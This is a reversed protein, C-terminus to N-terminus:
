ATKAKEPVPAAPAVAKEDGPLPPTVYDTGEWPSLFDFNRYAQNLKVKEYVVRKSDEDYRLEVYGTLPFDKRQPHGEFGYDTLIRRLDPHYLFFIGYMDWVEREFWNAALFVECVSPVPALEEVPVKVRIRCNKTLSLLNYVVEFRAVRNPYDVATVDMLQSFQCNEDDRLFTLLPVIDAPQAVLALEGNAVAYSTVRDSVMGQIYQGFQELTESM